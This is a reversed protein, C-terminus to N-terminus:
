VLSNDTQGSLIESPMIKNKIPIILKGLDEMANDIKKKQNVSLKSGVRQEYESIEIFLKQCKSILEHADKIPNPNDDWNWNLRAIAESLEFSKIVKLLGEEDFYESNM